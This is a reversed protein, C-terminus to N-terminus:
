TFYWICQKGYGQWQLRCLILRGNIESFATGLALRGRTSGKQACLVAFLNDRQRFLAYFHCDPRVTGEIKRYNFLRARRQGLDIGDIIVVVANRHLHDVERILRVRRSVAQLVFEEACAGRGREFCCRSKVVVYVLNRKTCQAEPFSKEVFLSM